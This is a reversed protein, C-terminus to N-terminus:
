STVGTEWAFTAVFWCITMSCELGARYVLSSTVLNQHTMLNHSPIMRDLYTVYGTESRGVSGLTPCTESEGTQPWSREGGEGDRRERGRGEGGTKESMMLLTLRV